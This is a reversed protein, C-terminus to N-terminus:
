SKRKIYEKGAETIKLEKTIFEPNEFFPLISKLAENHIVGTKRTIYQAVTRLMPDTALGHKGLIEHYKQMMDSLM